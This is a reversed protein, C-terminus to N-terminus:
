DKDKGEPFIILSFSCGATLIFDCSLDLRIPVQVQNIFYNGIGAVYITNKDFQAWCSVSLFCLSIALYQKM